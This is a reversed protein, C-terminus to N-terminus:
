GYGLLFHSATVFRTSGESLTAQVTPNMRLSHLSRMEALVSASRSSPDFPMALMLSSKIFVTIHSLGFTSIPKLWFAVHRACPSFGGRDHAGLAVPPFLSGVGNMLDILRFVTLGASERVPFALRLTLGYPTPYLVISFAFAARYRPLYGNRRFAVDRCAYAPQSGDPRENRSLRILRSLLCLLIIAAFVAPAAERSHLRQCALSQCCAYGLTCRSWPRITFTLCTALGRRAVPTQFAQAYHPSLRM